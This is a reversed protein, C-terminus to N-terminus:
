ADAPARAASAQPLATQAPEWGGAGATFVHKRALSGSRATAHEHLATAAPQAAPRAARVARTARVLGRAHVRTYRVGWRYSLVFAAGYCLMALRAIEPKDWTLIGTVVPLVILPLLVVLTMPNSVHRRGRGILGIELGRMIVQHYHLRDPQDTPRGARMRRYMTLFTDALPWFFVLSVAFVSVDGIRVLLIVGLWATVHGICYAGSDGLFIKGFPWNLVLFGLIAPVVGLAVTALAVDGAAHAIFALGLAACIGATAALGNVGDVLNFANSMGAGWLVTVAVAFPAYGLLLDLGPVDSRPIWVGLLAVAMLSSLAAAVLRGRPSIRYGLDEALGALFVPILTPVFHVMLDHLAGSSAFIMAGALAALIGIGGIRPTPMDHASQVACRDASRSTRHLHLSKATVFLSCISFSAFFIPLIDRAEVLEVM